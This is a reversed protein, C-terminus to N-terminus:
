LNGENENIKVKVEPNGWLFKDIKSPAANQRQEYIEVVCDGLELYENKIM